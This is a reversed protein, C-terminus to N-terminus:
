SRSGGDETHVRIKEEGAHLVVKEGLLFFLTKECKFILSEKGLLVCDADKAKM